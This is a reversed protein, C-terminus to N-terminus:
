GKAAAEARKLLGLFTDLDGLVESVSPHPEALAKVLKAHAKSLPTYDTDLDRAAQLDHAAQIINAVAARADSRDRDLQAVMRDRALVTAADRPPSLATLQAEDAQEAKKIAALQLQSELLRSSATTEINQKLHMAIVGMKRAAADVAPDAKTAAQRLAERRANVLANKEAWVAADVIVGAIPAVGVATALAKVATGVGAAAGQADTIDKATALTAMRDGYDALAGILARTKPATQDLIIPPAPALTFVIVCSTETAALECGAPSLSGAQYHDTAFGIVGESETKALGSFADRNATALKQFATAEDTPLATACGVLAFASVAFLFRRFM